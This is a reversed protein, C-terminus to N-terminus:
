KVENTLIISKLNPSVQPSFFSDILFKIKKKKTKLTQQRDIQTLIFDLDGEM